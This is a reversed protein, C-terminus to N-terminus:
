TSHPLSTLGLNGKTVGRTQSSGRLGERAIQHLKILTSHKYIILGITTTKQEVPPQHLEPHPIQSCKCLKQSTFDTPAYLKSIRTSSESVPLGLEM